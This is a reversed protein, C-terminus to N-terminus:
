ISVVYKKLHIYNSEMFPILRVNLDETIKNKENLDNRTQSEYHYAVLSCDCYNELNNTLCKFNFEVDEFCSEYSENFMGLNDFTSKKTMMLAGTNGIVNRVSVRKPYYGRMNIHTTIITKTKDYCVLIGEHQITNDEYHLRAGITGLSENEEHAKMMGSVVDNMLKIDNNCFLIYDQNTMYNRVVDNNIKAFNYYDYEILSVNARGKIYERIAQKEEITSGTDAIFIDFMESNCNEFFSNICAFLLNLKGKTLIVVGTKKYTNFAPIKQVYIEKPKLDLPLAGKWYKKFDERAQEFDSDMENTTNNALRFSSTVGIKAGSLYNSLCFFHEVFDSAREYENFRHKIKTKDFAFLLGDLSIAPVLFPLKDSYKIEKGKIFVQGVITENVRKWYEGSEPVNCYGAKGIIAYDPNKKFDQLLSWGWNSDLNVDNNICVIINHTSEDIARNYVDCLNEYEYELIQVGDIGINQSISNLFYSSKNHKSYAITIM